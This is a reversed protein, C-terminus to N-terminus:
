QDEPNGRRAAPDAAVPQYLALIKLRDEEVEVEIEDIVDDAGSLANPWTRM